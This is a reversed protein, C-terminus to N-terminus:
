GLMKSAGDPNILPLSPLFPSVHLSPFFPPPWLHSSPSPLCPSCSPAFLPCTNGGPPDLGSGPALFAFGIGKRGEGGEKRGEKIEETMKVEKKRGPKENKLAELSLQYDEM